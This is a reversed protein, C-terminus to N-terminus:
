IRRLTCIALLYIWSEKWTFFKELAFSGYMNARSSFGKFKRECIVAFSKSLLQTVDCELPFDFRNLAPLVPFELSLLSLLLLLYVFGREGEREEDDYGTPCSSLAGFSVNGEYGM